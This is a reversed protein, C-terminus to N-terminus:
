ASTFLLDLLLDADPLDLLLDLEGLRSNALVAELLALCVSAVVPVAFAGWPAFFDELIGLDVFLDSDVELDGRGLDVDGLLALCGISDM